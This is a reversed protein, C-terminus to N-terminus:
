YLAFVFIFSVTESVNPKDASLDLSHQLPVIYTRNAGCRQKLIEPSTYVLKSLPELIGKQSAKCLHYGGCQELKPFYSVLLQRFENTTMCLTPFEVIREGLGALFLQDKEIDSSPM